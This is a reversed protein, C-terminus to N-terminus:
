EVDLAEVYVIECAGNGTDDRRLSTNWTFGGAGRVDVLWGQVRVLQGPRLRKLRAEMADDSPVMHMQAAHTQLVRAPIPFDREKADWYFFRGMQSFRIGDLVASDSMPGWGVGLDVPALGAGGDLRYIEKRLVRATIDYRARAHLEYGKHPIRRAEALDVQRPEARVLEGPPHSVARERTWWNWGGLLSAGLLVLLVWRVARSGLPEAIWTL